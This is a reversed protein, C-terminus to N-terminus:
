DDNRNMRSELRDTSARQVRKMDELLNRVRNYAADPDGGGAAPQKSTAQKPTAQKKPSPARWDKSQPQSIAEAIREVEGRDFWTGHKPCVDVDLWAFDVRQRTLVSDCEPCPLNDESLDIKDKSIASHARFAALANDNLGDVFLSLDDKGLWVGSCRPCGHASLTDARAIVLMTHCRPCNM